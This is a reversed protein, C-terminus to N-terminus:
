FPISLGVLFQTAPGNTVGSCGGCGSEHAKINAYVRGQAMLWEYRLTLGLYPTMWLGGYTSGGNIPTSEIRFSFKSDYVYIGIDGGAVFPGLKKEAIAGISVGRATQKHDGKGVCGELTMQNCNEGSPNVTHQESDLLPYSAQWRLTGFDVYAMRWGIDWSRYTTEIRSVGVQFCTSSTEADNPYASNWWVGDGTLTQNCRGGLAEFRWGEAQATTPLGILLWLVLCIIGLWLADDGEDNM